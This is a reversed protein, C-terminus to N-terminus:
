KADKVQWGESYAGDSESSKKPTWISRNVRNRGKKKASYLAKDAASYWSEFSKSLDPRVTVIGISATLNGVDSFVHEDIARVLRYACGDAAAISSTSLMICFEEGGFRACMDEDRCHSNLLQTIEKLVRDGVAHGHVDNVLKFHDLDIVLLSYIRNNPNSSGTLSNFGDIFARRNMAGTLSDRSALGTLISQERLAKDRELRISFIRYGVITTTLLAETVLSPYLGFDLLPIDEVIGLGKLIRGAIYLMMPSWALLQLKCILRGRYSGYVLSGVIALLPLIFMAHHIISGYHSLRPAAMMLLASSLMPALGAVSLATWWFRGLADRGCLERTLYCAFTFAVAIILHNFISRQIPEVTFPLVQFFGAWSLGYALACVMVGCHFIMFRYRLVPYMILNFMIPTILLGVVLAYILAGNLHAQQAQAMSIISTDRWNVPDWPTEISLIVKEIDLGAKQPLPEVFIAPVMSREAIETPSLYKTAISNDSYVTSVTVAGHYSTYFRLAPDQFAAVVGSVDKVVWLHQAPRELAETSCNLQDSHRLIDRPTFHPADVLTCTNDGAPASQAYSQDFGIVTMSAFVVLAALLRRLGSMM